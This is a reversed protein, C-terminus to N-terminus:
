RLHKYATKKRENPESLFLQACYSIVVLFDTSCPQHEDSSAMQPRVASWYGVSGVMWRRNIHSCCHTCTVLDSWSLNILFHLPFAGFTINNLCSLSVNLQGGSWQFAAHRFAPFFILIILDVCTFLSFFFVDLCKKIVIRFLHQYTLKKQPYMFAAAAPFRWLIPNVEGSISLQLHLSNLRQCHYGVSSHCLELFQWVSGSYTVSREKLDRIYTNILLSYM